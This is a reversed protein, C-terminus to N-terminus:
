GVWWRRATAVLNRGSVPVEHTCIRRKGLDCASYKRVNYKYWYVSWHVRVVNTREDQEDEEDGNFDTDDCIWSPLWSRGVCDGIAGSFKRLGWRMRWIKRGM